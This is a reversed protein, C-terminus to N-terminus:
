RGLPLGLPGGPALAMFGAALLLYTAFTRWDAEEAAPTFARWAAVAVLPVAWFVHVLLAMPLLAAVVMWRQRRSLGNFGRSGDLQWVPVLNFLHIVADISAIALWVHAGTALYVAYFALNAGMGWIPGALGVRADVRPTPPHERLRVLAGLGPIFFPAGARIGYKRLEWVHGMEHVYLCALLGMGLQWGYLKWLFAMYGLMSLVVSLKSLGLLLFKAKGLILLVTAGIGAKQGVGGSGKSPSKAAAKKGEGAEVRRSLAVVRATIAQHQRSAEPLLARASSWATLADTLRGEAEAAEARAALSQVEGGHVLWGCSPCSLLGPGLETECRGCLAAPAAYTETM